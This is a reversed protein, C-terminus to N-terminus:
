GRITKAVTLSQTQKFNIFKKALTM